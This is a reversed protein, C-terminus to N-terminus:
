KVQVTDSKHYIDITTEHCLRLNFNCFGVSFRGKTAKFYDLGRGIKVTWGNSFRIERDHLTESYTVTLDIGHGKLSSGIEALRSRQEESEFGTTLLIKKVSKATVLLECFRLFNYIQHTNRIYPDEIEVHTVSGDLFRAFVREYGFGQANEAISIREHHPGTAKKTTVYQKVIEARDMYKTIQERLASAREGDKLTKVVGILLQIGEQYCVLAESYKEGSDLEAARRLLSVASEM